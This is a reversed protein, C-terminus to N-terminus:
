EKDKHKIHTIDRLIVLKSISGDLNILPTEIYDYTSNNKKSFWEWRVTNGSFVDHNKCWPCAEKKSYFYEYCKKDTFVGFKKIHKSNVFQLDYQKNIIYVGDALCELIQILNEREAQIDETREQVMQDLIYREKNLEEEANKIRLMVNIQAILEYKDIPKTLFADAGMDLAKVRDTSDAEMGTLMVVPIKKTNEDEKLKRCVEYGDMGSMIIDLLIIDPMEYKAKEIGEHGSQATVVMSEPITKEILASTVELYEVNDDIALIKPMYM